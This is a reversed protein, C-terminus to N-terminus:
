RKRGLARQLREFLAQGTGALQELEALGEPTVTGLRGTRLGEQAGRCRERYVLLEGLIRQRDSRREYEEVAQHLVAELEDPNWPKTLYRFISGQNIADIVAKIDAYGTIILRIAEPYESRVQRLFEVGTMEPMRQDTMIVHIPQRRLVQFGDYASTATNVEFEKRLLGRLSYLIEPEDDVILIPHRTVEAV